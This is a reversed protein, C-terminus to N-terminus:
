RRKRPSYFDRLVKKAKKRREIREDKGAEKFTKKKGYDNCHFGAGRFIVNQGADPSIIRKIEGGCEPCVTWADDTIRHSIELTGCKKCEYHYTPM